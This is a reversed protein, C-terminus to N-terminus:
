RGPYSPPLLANCKPELDEGGEPCATSGNTYPDYYWSPPYKPKPSSVPNTASPATPTQPVGPQGYQANANTATAVAILLAIFQLRRATSM